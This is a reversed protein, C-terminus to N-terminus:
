GEATGGWSAPIQALEADGSATYSGCGFFTNSHISPPTTQTSMQNYLDLAGSEVNPCGGFMSDVNTMASTNLLPVRKITKCQNLAYEAIIVSSTDFQPIEELQTCGFFAAAITTVSSSDFLCCSVLSTCGRFMRFMSTVSSCDGAAIVSVLNDESTFANYFSEAFSVNSSTWDWVNAEFTTLKKWTGNSGVGAVNPDYEKKSFYFRLTNAAPPNNSLIAIELMELKKDVGSENVLKNEESTDDPILEKIPTGGSGGNTAKAVGDSTVPNFSGEKPTQDFHLEGVMQSEYERGEVTKRIM